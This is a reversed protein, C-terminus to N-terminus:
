KFNRYVELNRSHNKGKKLFEIIKHRIKSIKPLIKSIFQKQFFLPSIFEMKLFDFIQFLVFIKKLNLTQM